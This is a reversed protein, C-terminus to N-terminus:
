LPMATVQVRDRPVEIMALVKGYEGEDRVGIVRLRYSRSHINTIGETSVTRIEEVELIHGPEVTELEGAFGTFSAEVVAGLKVDTGEDIM